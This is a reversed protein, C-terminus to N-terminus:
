ERTQLVLNLHFTQRTIQAGFLATLDINDGLM